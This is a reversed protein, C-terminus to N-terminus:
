TISPLLATFRGSWVPALLRLATSIRPPAFSPSRMTTDPASPKPSVSRTRMVPSHDHTGVRGIGTMRERLVPGRQVQGIGHRQAQGVPDGQAEDFEADGGDRGVIGENDGGRAAPAAAVRAAVFEGVEAHTSRVGGVM